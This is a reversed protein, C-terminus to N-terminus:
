IEWDPEGLLERLDKAVRTPKFTVHSESYWVVADEWFSDGEAPEPISADTGYYWDCNISVTPM